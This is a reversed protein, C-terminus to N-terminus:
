KICGFSVKSAHPLVGMRSVYYLASVTADGDEESHKFRVRRDLLRDDWELHRLFARLALTADAPFSAKEVVIRLCDGPAQELAYTLSPWAKGIKARLKRLIAKNLPRIRKTSLGAPLFKYTSAMPWPTRLRPDLWEPRSEPFKTRRPYKEPSWAPVDKTRTELVTSFPPPQAPADRDFGGLKFKPPSLAQEAGSSLYNPYVKKPTPTTSYDVACHTNVYEDLPWARYQTPRKEGKHSPVFVPGSHFEAHADQRRVLEKLVNGPLLKVPLSKISSFNNGLFSQAIREAEDNRSFLSATLDKPRRNAETRLDGVSAQRGARTLDRRAVPGRRTRYKQSHPPGENTYLRTTTRKPQPAGLDEFMARLPSMSAGRSPSRGTRIPSVGRGTAVPSAGRASATTSPRNALLSATYPRTSPSLPAGQKAHDTLLQTLQQEEAFSARKHRMPSSPPPAEGEDAFVDTPSFM